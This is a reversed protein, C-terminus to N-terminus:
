RKCTRIQVPPGELVHAKARSCYLAPGSGGGVSTRLLTTSPFLMVMWHGPKEALRGCVRPQSAVVALFASGTEVADLLDLLLRDGFTVAFALGFQVFTAPNASAIM